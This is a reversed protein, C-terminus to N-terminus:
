AAARAATEAAALNAAVTADDATTQEVTVTRVDEIGLFTLLFRLYPALFDAPELAGGVDYGGAGYALCLIARTPTALGTFNAGDFAFTRNIRVIQDIWLKLSAPPAFNYIPASILLTDAAQLEAILMDSLATAAREDPGKAADPTYFGAITAESIVPITGDTVDRNTVTGGPHTQRWAAEASDALARSHSGTQRSSSDIRLLHPM